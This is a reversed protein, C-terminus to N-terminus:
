VRKYNLQSCCVNVRPEVRAEVVFNLLLLEHLTSMLIRHMHRAKLSWSWAGHVRESAVPLGLEGVCRGPLTTRHM